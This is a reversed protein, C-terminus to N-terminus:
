AAKARVPKTEGLKDMIEARGFDQPFDDVMIVHKRLSEKRQWQAYEEASIIDRERALQATDVGSRPELAGAKVAERLKKDIPECAVAALFAAWKWWMIGAWFVAAAIVPGIALALMAPSLQSALARRYAEPVTM